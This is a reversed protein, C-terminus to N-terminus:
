EQNMSTTSSIKEKVLNQPNYRVISLAQNEYGMNQSKRTFHFSTQLTPHSLVTPWCDVYRTIEPGFLYLAKIFFYTVDFGQFSFRSPENNFNYRFNKCMALTLSDAYNVYPNSFNTYYHLNLKYLSELQLAEFKGWEPKGFVTINYHLALNNLRNIMDSVFVKNTSPIIIFNERKLSLVDELRFALSDELNLTLQNNTLLIQRYRLDNPNIKYTLYNRINSSYKTTQYNLDNSDIVLLINKNYYRSIYMSALEQQLEDSPNVQFLYPNDNLGIGKSSLPSVLPIKKMRSFISVIELTEPYVPGIILDMNDLKGSTVLNRVVYPNRETDFIHVTLSLGSQRLSDIALLSGELFELFRLAERYLDNEPHPLTDNLHLTDNTNVYLPLLFAIEFKTDNHPKIYKACDGLEGWPLLENQSSEGEVLPDNNSIQDPNIEVPTDIVPQDTNDTLVSESSPIRIVEGATLGWRLGPNADKIDKVKINYFNSLSFLTEQEKVKHYKYNSTEQPVLSERNPTITTRPIRLEKGVPLATESGPNLRIIEQISIKYKRGIASLTQKPEVIHYIFSEHDKSLDEVPEILEVFPIKLVQGEKIGSFQVVPNEQGIVKVSVNYVKSISYLTHGTKVEHLYYKKGDLEIMNNSRLVKTPIFQGFASSVPMLLSVWIGLIFFFHSLYSIKSVAKNM